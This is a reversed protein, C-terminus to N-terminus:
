DPKTSRVQFSTGDRAPNTSSVGAPVHDTGDSQTSFFTGPPRFFFGHRDPSVTGGRRFVAQYQVPQGNVLPAFRVHPAADVPVTPQVMIGVPESISAQRTGAAHQRTHVVQDIAYGMVRFGVAFEAANFCYCTVAEAFVEPETIEFGVQQGSFCQHRYALVLLDYSM